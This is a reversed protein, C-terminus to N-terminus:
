HSDRNKKESIKKMRDRERWTLSGEGDKAIKDLMRDMFADDGEQFVSIDIIKDEKHKQSKRSFELNLPYPNPLKCMLRGLLFGWVIGAVDALFAIYAGYSLNFLLAFLLYIGVLWKAKLRVFFFFFLQLEPYLMTWILLLTYIPPGSGFLVSQSSSFFLVLASVIGAFIGGSFYFFICKQWGFYSVIESGAFWLLFMHFFLFILLSFTIGVGATHVFFYTLPQWFWGQKLGFLSLSFWSSPGAFHTYHELFFTILPSLLSLVITFLILWKIPKPTHHPGLFFSSAQM